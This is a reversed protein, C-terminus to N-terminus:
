LKLDAKLGDLEAQAEEAADAVLQDIKEAEINAAALWGRITAITQFAAILAIRAISIAEANM